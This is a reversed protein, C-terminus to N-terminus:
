KKFQISVLIEDITKKAKAEDGNVYNLAGMVSSKMDSNEVYFTYYSWESGGNRMLLGRNGKINIIESYYTSNKIGSRKNRGDSGLKMGMLYDKEIPINHYFISLQMGDIEYENEGRPLEVEVDVGLKFKSILKEENPSNSLLVAGKPLTLQTKDKGVKTQSFATASILLLALLIKIKKMKIKIIKVILDM